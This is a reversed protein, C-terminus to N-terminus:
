QVVVYKENGLLISVRKTGNLRLLFQRQMEAPDKMGCDYCVEAGDKGYPRTEAVEGCDACESPAEMAIVFEDETVLSV